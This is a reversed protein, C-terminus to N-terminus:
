SAECRMSVAYVLIQRLTYGVPSGLVCLVVGLCVGELNPLNRKMPEVLVTRPMHHLARAVVFPWVGGSFSNHCCLRLACEGNPAPYESVIGWCTFVFQTRWPNSWVLHACLIRAGM